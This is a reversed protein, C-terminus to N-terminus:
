KARQIMVLTSSDLIFFFSFIDRVDHLLENIFAQKMLTQVVMRPQSVGEIWIGLIFNLVGARDFSKPNTCISKPATLLFTLKYFDSDEL